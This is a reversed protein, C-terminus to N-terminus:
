PLMIFWLDVIKTPKEPEYVFIGQALNMCELKIEQERSSENTFIRLTKFIDVASQARSCRMSHDMKKWQTFNNINMNLPM